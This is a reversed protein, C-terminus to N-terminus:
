EKKSSKGPGAADSIGLPIEAIWALLYKGAQQIEGVTWKGQLVPAKGPILVISKEPAEPQASPVTTAM